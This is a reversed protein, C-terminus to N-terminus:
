RVIGKRALPRLIRLYTWSHVVWLFYILMWPGALPSEMRALVQAGAVGIVYIAIAGGWGFRQLPRAPIAFWHTMARLEVVLEVFAPNGPQARVLQEAIARAEGYRGASVLSVVLSYCTSLADPRTRMLEALSEGSVKEDGLITGILVRLFNAREHHPDIRLAEDVVAGAKEFQLNDLLLQAYRTMWDVDRPNRQIQELATKEAAAAENRERHLEFIGAQAFPNDPDLALAQGLFVEGADLQGQHIKAYGLMALADVQEPDDELVADLARCAEAYRGITILHQAQQLDDHPPV